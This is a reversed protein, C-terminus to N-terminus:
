LNLSTQKTESKVWSPRSAFNVANPLSSSFHQSLFINNGLQHSSALALLIYSPFVTASSALGGASHLQQKSVQACSSKVQRHAHRSGMRGRGRWARWSRDIEANRPLWALCANKCRWLWARYRLWVFQFQVGSAQSLASAIRSVM